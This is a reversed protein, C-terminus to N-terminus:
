MLFTNCKSIRFVRVSEMEWGIYAAAYNIALIDPSAAGRQKNVLMAKNIQCQLFNWIIASQSRSRDGGIFSCCRNRFCNEHQAECCSFLTLMLPNSIVDRIPDDQEPIEVKNSNLYSM